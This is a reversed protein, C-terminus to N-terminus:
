STGFPNYFHDPPIRLSFPLSVSRAFRARVEGGGKATATGLFIGTSAARVTRLRLWRGRLAQEVVVTGARSTPTRGWVLIRPGHRYAVFPFRFATLTPKPKAAGGADPEFFLGSQYRSASLPEDFLSFWTVVSIGNQWMVHLAESVWRAQVDIPIANPDPPNTDWSFETVWFQPPRLAVIRHTRWAADLVKRMKPLDGLSVDDSHVAHHTPGGSTYPHHAWADIHVTAGCTPKLNRGLCFLSRMFVLPAMSLVSRGTGNVTTFPATAGAVVINDSHVSHVAGAFANAMERYWAPSFPKGNVYQPQLYYVLNPENWLLWYRVRPLGHYAGSYRIAAAKAFAALQHPNPKIAGYYPQPKGQQAWLPAGGSIDLIPQFGNDLAARVQADASKWDYAPDGPDSAHFGSPADAGAPAIEDWDVVVRWMTAGTQRAYSSDPSASTLATRLAPAATRFASTATASGVSGKTTPAAFGCAVGVALLSAAFGLLAGARM